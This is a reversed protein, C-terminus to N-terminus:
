VSPLYDATKLKSTPYTLRSIVLHRFLIDLVKSFGICDFLTGFILEPGITRISANSLAEKTKISLLKQQGHFGQSLIHSAEIWLKEIEDPDRSTGITRHVRYTGTSKDIIQISVTGSRNVVKRVFM